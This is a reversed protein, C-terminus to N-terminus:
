MVPMENSTQVLPVPVAAFWTLKVEVLRVPEGTHDNEIAAVAEIQWCQCSGKLVGSLDVAAPVATVMTDGAAAVFL